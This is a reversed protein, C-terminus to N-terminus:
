VFFVNCCHYLRLEGQLWVQLCWTYNDGGNHFRTQVAVKVKYHFARMLLQEQLPGQSSKPNGLQIKEKNEFKQLRGSM